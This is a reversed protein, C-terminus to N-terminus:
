HTLLRRRCRRRNAPERIILIPPRPRSACPRSAALGAQAVARAGGRAGSACGARARVQKYTPRCTGDKGSCHVVRELPQVSAGPADKEGDGPGRTPAAAAAKLRAAYGKPPDPVTSLAARIAAASADAPSIFKAATTVEKSTKASLDPVVGGAPGAAPRSTARSPHPHTARPTRAAAAGGRRPARPARAATHSRPRAQPAPPPAGARPPTHTLIGDLKYEDDM